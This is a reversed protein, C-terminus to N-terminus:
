ALARRARKRELRRQEVVLAGEEHREIAARRDIRAGADEGLARASDAARERAQLRREVPHLLALRWASLEIASVVIGLRPADAAHKGIEADIEPLTRSRRPRRPRGTRERRAEGLLRQAELPLQMADLM